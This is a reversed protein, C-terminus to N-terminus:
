CSEFYSMNECDTLGFNNVEILIGSVAAGPQRSKSSDACRSDAEKEFDKYWQSQGPASGNSYSTKSLIKVLERARKRQPWAPCLQARSRKWDIRRLKNLNPNMKRCGSFHGAAGFQTATRAEKSQDRQHL